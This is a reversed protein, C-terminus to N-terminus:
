GSFTRGVRELPRLAMAVGAGAADPVPEAAARVPRRRERGARAGARHRVAAAGADGGDHAARVEEWTVPTSVTPRERARVSYVNVTTKHIDNQSWDVLVKGARIRKTMRCVVLEPLRQELLEAVRKAFPKTQEYGVATNLPVYVQMGKSGSTKAFIELGLQAFLGQLVLAVECCQSSTPRAARSRPRVRREDAAGARRRAVAVHAARHRRPQGALRADGPGPGAHLQDRRHPGDAGLRPPALAVAERLLVAGEVGNPYRKLTLPRDRLHPVLVPAMRAYFAILDGKTFGTQPYLVKDWNTLKLRRGGTLVSLAGDPLQEVEDFLAEPDRPAAPDPDSGPASAASERVVERPEKDERLGKYSPARMVGDPTWEVFEIEAVLCPEVYQTERPLKPAGTFPSTDRRLPALRHELDALTKQTFGTGVRGAFRFAGAEYLGMLLAGISNARRGEGPIWGGIVLEQRSTNKIKVWGGSRRGPEYPCDLRKAIM